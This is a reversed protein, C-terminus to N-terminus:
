DLKGVGEHFAIIEDVGGETGGLEKAVLEKLEEIYGTWIGERSEWNEFNCRNRVYMFGNRDLSFEHERGRVDHITEPPGQALRVTTRPDRATAERSVVQVPPRNKTFELGPSLYHLQAKVDRPHLTHDTVIDHLKASVNDSCAETSPPIVASELYSETAHPM